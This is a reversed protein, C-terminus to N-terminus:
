VYGTEFLQGRDYTLATRYINVALAIEMASRWWMYISAANFVMRTAFAYWIGSVVLSVSSGLRSVALVSWSVPSSSIRDAPSCCTVTSTVDTIVSAFSSYSLAINGVNGAWCTKKPSFWSSIPNELDSLSLACLLWRTAIDSYPLWEVYTWGLASRISLQSCCMWITCSMHRMQDCVVHLM